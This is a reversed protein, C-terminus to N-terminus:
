RAGFWGEHSRGTFNRKGGPSHVLAGSQRLTDKQVPLRPTPAESCSLPGTLESAPTPVLGSWQPIHSM